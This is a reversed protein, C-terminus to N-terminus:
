FILIKLIDDICNKLELERPSALEKSALIGYTFYVGNKLEKVPSREHMANERIFEMQKKISDLAGTLEAQLEEIKDIACNALACLRSYDIGRM